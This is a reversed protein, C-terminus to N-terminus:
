EHLELPLGDPDSFFTFKKGTYEDLRIPETTIGNKNLENVIDEINEVHFALHRLGCAEPYSLRRPAKPMSFLEIESNGIKLDLKYSDKDSRYNERIIEFGLINVYFNKSAEYNSAIIAIHHISNLKM